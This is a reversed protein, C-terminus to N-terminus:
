GLAIQVSGCINGNYDRLHSFFPEGQHNDVLQAARSLLDQLQVWGFAGDMNVNLEFTKM